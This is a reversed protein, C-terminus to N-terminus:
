TTSSSVSEHLSSNGQRSCYEKYSIYANCIAADLIFYSGNSKWWKRSRRGVYNYVRHQDHVNIGNMNYHYFKSVNIVEDDIVIRRYKGTGAKAKKLNDPDVEVAKM